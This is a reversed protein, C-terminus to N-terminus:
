FCYYHDITFLNSFVSFQRDRPNIISLKSTKKLFSCKLLCGLIALFHTMKRSRHRHRLKRKLTNLNEIETASWRAIVDFESQFFTVLSFSHKKNGLEVFSPIASLIKNNFQAAETAAPASSCIMIKSPNTIKVISTGCIKM